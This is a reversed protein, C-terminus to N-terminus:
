DRIPSPFREIDDEGLYDGLQVEILVLNSTGKYNRIQHFDWKDVYIGDGREVEILKDNVYVEGKGQVITWIEERHKHRQYSTAKGPYVVLRKVQYDKLSEILHEYYGWQREFKKTSEGLWEPKFEATSAKKILWRSSQKKDGLGDVLEIGLEECIAREPISDNNQDGGNAFIDPKHLRLTECVTRDTDISLVAKDVCALAAILEVREEAKMFYSGKKLISQEDNNVIVLLRTGLQKARELYEKHGSHFPDFYGSVCVVKEEKNSEASPDM